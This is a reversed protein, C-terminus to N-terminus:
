PCMISRILIRAVMCIGILAWRTAEVAVITICWRWCWSTATSSATSSSTSARTVRISSRTSSSSSSRVAVVSTTTTTATGVVAVLLHIMDSRQGLNDVIAEKRGVLLIGIIRCWKIVQIMAVSWYVQKLGDAVIINECWVRLMMLEDVGCQIILCTIIYLLKTCVQITKSPDLSMYM